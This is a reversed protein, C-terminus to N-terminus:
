QEIDMENRRRLAATTLPRRAIVLLKLSSELSVIQFVEWGEEGWENLMSEIDIDNPGKWSSGVKQTRYEWKTYDAM